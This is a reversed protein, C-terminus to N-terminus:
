RDLEGREAAAHAERIGNRNDVWGWSSESGQARLIDISAVQGVIEPDAVLGYVCGNFDDQDWEQIRKIGEVLDEM